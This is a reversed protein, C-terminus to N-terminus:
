AKIVNVLRECCVLGIAVDYVIFLREPASFGISNIGHLDVDAFDVKETRFYESIEM